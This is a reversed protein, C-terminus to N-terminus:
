FLSEMQYSFGMSIYTKPTYANSFHSDSISLGFSVNENHIIMGGSIFFENHIEPLDPAQEFSEKNYASNNTFFGLLFKYRNKLNFLIGSHHDLKDKTLYFDLSTKKMELRYYIKFNMIKYSIGANIEYPIIKTKKSFTEDDSNLVQM